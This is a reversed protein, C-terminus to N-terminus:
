QFLFNFIFAFFWVITRIFSHAIDSTIIDNARILSNGSLRVAFCVMSMSEPSADSLCLVPLPGARSQNTAFYPWRYSYYWLFSEMVEAILNFYRIQFNRKFLMQYRMWLQQASYSHPHLQTHTCLHGLRYSSTVIPPRPDGVTRGRTTNHARTHHTLLALSRGSTRM